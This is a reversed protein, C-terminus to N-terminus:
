AAAYGPGILATIWDLLLRPKVRLQQYEKWTIQLTLVSHKETILEHQHEKRRITRATDRSTQAFRAYKRNGAKTCEINLVPRGQRDFITFDPNCATIVNGAHDWEVPYYVGEYSADFGFGCLLSWVLFEVCDRPRGSPYPKRIILPATSAPRDRRGVSTTLM